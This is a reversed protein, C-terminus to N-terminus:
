VIRKSGVFFALVRRVRVLGEKIRRSAEEGYVVEAGVVDQEDVRSVISELDHVVDGNLRSACARAVSGEIGTVGFLCRM